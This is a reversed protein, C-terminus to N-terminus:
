ERRIIADLLEMLCKHCLAIVLDGDSDEIMWRTDVRKGCGGCYGDSYSDKVVKM